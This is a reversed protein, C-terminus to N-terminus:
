AAKKTPALAKTLAQAVEKLASAADSLAKAAQAEGEAPVAKAAMEERKLQVGQAGEQQRMALENGHKEREFGMKQQGHAAELQLKQRGQDAQMQMEQAHQAAKMQLEREKLTLEAQKVQIDMQGKQGEIQLKQQEFQTKAQMEAQTKQAELKLKEMEPNPQPNAKREAQAQASAQMTREFVQELDRGIRFRRAAFMLMEMLLPQMEPAAMVIQAAALLYQEVATLFEVTQEKEAQEDVAITSDTEIDIEYERAGEDKLLQLAQMATQEDVELSQAGAMRLIQEPAFHEAIIEAIICVCDRVFRQVDAQREKLRMTGFNGKLKQATATEKSDTAGRMLDSIGTIEYLDSKAIQRTEYIAKLAEVREQLPLSDMATKLGGKDAFAAWTPVAKYVDDASDNFLPGLEKVGGDYVGAIRLGKSVALGRNTLRDLERVQDRCQEFDPVPILSDPTLTGYLPRPTPFFDRLGLPDPKEDLPGDKYFQCVWVVKGREKDWIEWIPTTDKVAAGKKDKRESEEKGHKIKAAIYKGFRKAIARGRMHVRRSVWPVLDWTSAPGHLLDQYYVFEKRVKEATVPTFAEGEVFKGLDDELLGGAEYRTGKDDHYGKFPELKVGIREKKEEGYTPEYCFWVTGRASLLYDDRASKVVDVFAPQDVEFSTAGELLQAAVRGLPNNDRHRREAIVKPPQSFLAPKQVEVNSWFINFRNLPAKTDSGGPRDNRYRKYAEDAQGWWTSNDKEAKAIRELWAQAQEEPSPKDKSAM